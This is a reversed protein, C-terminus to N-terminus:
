CTLVMRNLLIWNYISYSIDKTLSIHIICLNYIYINIIYMYIYIMYIYM